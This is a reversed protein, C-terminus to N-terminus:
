GKPVGDKCSNEFLPHERSSYKKWSPLENLIGKFKLGFGPDKLLLNLLGVSHAEASAPEKV